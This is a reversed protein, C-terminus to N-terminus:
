KVEEGTDSSVVSPAGAADGFAFRKISEDTVYWKAGVKQGKLRGNLIYKRVTHYSLNLIEGAENITYIRKDGLIIM